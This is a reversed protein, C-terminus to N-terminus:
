SAASCAAPAGANPRASPRVVPLRASGFVRPEAALSGAYLLRTPMGFETQHAFRVTEGVSPVGTLVLDRDRTELFYYGGGGGFVSNHGDRAGGSLAVFCERPQFLNELQQHLMM